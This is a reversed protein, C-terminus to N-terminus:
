GNDSVTSADHTRKEPFPFRPTTLCRLPKMSPRLFYGPSPIPHRPAVHHHHLLLHIDPVPALGHLVVCSHTHQQKQQQQQQPQPQPQTSSKFLSPSELLLLDTGLLPSPHHLSLFTLSKHHRQPPIPPLGQYLYGSDTSTVQTRRQGCASVRTMLSMGCCAAALWSRGQLFRAGPGWPGWLGQEITKLEGRWSDVFNLRTM